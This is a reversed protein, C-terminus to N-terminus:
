NRPLTTITTHARDVTIALALSNIKFPKMSKGQNLIRMKRLDHKRIMLWLAIRCAAASCVSHAAESSAHYLIARSAFQVLKSCTRFSQFFESLTPRNTTNSM